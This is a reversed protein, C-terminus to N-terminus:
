GSMGGYRDELKDVQASLQDNYSTGYHTFEASAIDRAERMRNPYYGCLSLGNIANRLMEDLAPDKIEPHDKTFIAVADYDLIDATISEDSCETDEIEEEMSSALNKGNIQVILNNFAEDAQERTYIQGRKAFLDISEIDYLAQWDVGQSAAYELLRDALTSLAGTRSLGCPMNSEKTYVRCLIDLIQEYGQLHTKVGHSAQREHEEAEGIFTLAKKEDSENSVIISVQYQGRAVQEYRVPLGLKYANGLFYRYQSSDLVRSITKRTKEPETIGQSAEIRSQLGNIEQRLREIQAINDKASELILEQMDSRLRNILDAVNIQIEMPPKERTQSEEINRRLTRTPAYEREEYTARRIGVNSGGSADMTWGVFNPNEANLFRIYEPLAMGSDKAETCLAHAKGDAYATSFEHGSQDRYYFRVEKIRSCQTPNFYSDKLSILDNLTKIQDDSFHSRHRRIYEKINSFAPESHIKGLINLLEEYNYERSAM